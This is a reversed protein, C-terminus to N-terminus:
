LYLWVKKQKAKSKLLQSGHKCIGNIAALHLKRELAEPASHFENLSYNM